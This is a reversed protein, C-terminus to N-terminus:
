VCHDTFRKLILFKIHEDNDGDIDNESNDTKLYKTYILKPWYGFCYGTVIRYAIKSPEGWIWLTKQLILSFLSKLVRYYQM